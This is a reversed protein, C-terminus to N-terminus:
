RVSPCVGVCGCPQVRCEDGPVQFATVEADPAPPQRGCPLLGFPLAVCSTPPWPRPGVPLSLYGTKPSCGCDATSPLTRRAVVSKSPAPTRCFSSGRRRSSLVGGPGATPPAPLPNWLPCVPQLGLQKSQWRPLPHAGREVTVHLVWLIAAADKRGELGGGSHRKLGVRVLFMCSLSNQSVCSLM